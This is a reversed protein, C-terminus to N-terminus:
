PKVARLQRLKGAMRLAYKGGPVLDSLVKAGMLTGVLVAEGRERLTYGPGLAIGISGEVYKLDARLIDSPSEAFMYFIDHDVSLADVANVPKANKGGGELRAQLQTGPGTFNHGPLHFEGKM